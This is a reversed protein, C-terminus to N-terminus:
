KESKVEGAPALTAPSRLERARKTHDMRMEVASRYFGATTLRIKVIANEPNEWFWGHIGTFPATFSGNAQRRDQKDYSEEAPGGGPPPTAREGHFDHTLPGSATWSYIMTAGQELHYKYELYEFPELELEVVDFKFEAPYQGVPGHVIPVLPADGPRPDDIAAVPPSAIASLGLLRGTGLPDIGYEAPLVATVLIIGAAALALVTTRALTARSPAASVPVPSDPSSVPDIGPNM